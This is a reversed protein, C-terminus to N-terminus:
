DEGATLTPTSVRRSRRRGQGAAKPAPLAELVADLLDEAQRKPPRAAPEHHEVPLDLVLPPTTPTEPDLQEPAPVDAPQDSAKGTVITAVFLPKAFREGGWLKPAAEAKM